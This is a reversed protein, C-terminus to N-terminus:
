VNTEGATLADTVPPDLAAPQQTTQRPPVNFYHEFIQRAIPGAASGGHQGHEVVVAVAIQPNKAPAYAVFLAHDRHRYAIEEADVSEGEVPDDKLRVVQATGTKAAVMVEPLYCSKGTGYPHNVVEEMGKKVLNLDREDLTLVGLKHPSHNKLIEGSSTEIHKILQPQYLIGGNAITATMVALQLPTALVSGQGIASIATEGKYWPLNHRQRKWHKDPILGPMENDLPLDYSRGLGLERAMVSMRDIGLRLAVEYFWVDCSERLAKTLNTAGHGQKKWCRFDRNGVTTRGQCDILEDPTVVNDRLAALATVMKYTSGPPYQGSYAKAQLPHDPNALLAQWQQTSIGRTFIAPDFAPRSVMALIDGNNVDLVVAAGNHTSFAQEAHLQLSQQLTLYVSQGPIPAKVQLQRLQQGKVDVEVLKEGPTGKLFSELHKEIGSKGIFDGARYGQYEPLSLEQETIAGIHGFLHAATEQLPYDRVPQIEIIMGPLEVSNEALKEVTARDIDDLLPVPRYRPYYRRKEWANGLQQPACKLYGALRALFQEKDIVDQRLASATFSPRNGVLLQGDRDYIPGRSAAIPIYRTRNKQSLLQYRDGSIIQLYWLRMGLVAFFFLAAVILWKFRRRRSIDDPQPSNLAM